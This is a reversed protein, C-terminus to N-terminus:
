RKFLCRLCAHAGWAFGMVGWVWFMSQKPFGATELLGYSFSLAATIAAAVALSELSRLRMFEDMRGFHRAIAWVALILPVVPTILLLTRATGQDMGKSLYISGFLAVMYAFMASFLELRYQRTGEREKM